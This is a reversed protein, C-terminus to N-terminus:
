DSFFSFIGIVVTSLIICITAVPSFNIKNGLYTCIQLIAYSLSLLIVAIINVIFLWRTIHHRELLEFMAAALASVSAFLFEPNLLIYSSYSYGTKAELSYTASGIAILPLFSIVLAAIWYWFAVIKKRNKNYWNKISGIRGSKFPKKNDFSDFRVDMAGLFTTLSYDHKEYTVKEASM